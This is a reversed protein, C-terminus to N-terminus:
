GEGPAPLEHPDTADSAYRRHPEAGEARSPERREARSGGSQEARSAGEGRSPERGGARERPEAREQETWCASIRGGTSFASSSSVRGGVAGGDCKCASPRGPHAGGGAHRNPSPPWSQMSPNSRGRLSARCHHVEARRLASCEKMVKMLRCTISSSRVDTNIFTM